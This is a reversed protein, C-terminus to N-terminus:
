APLSNAFALLYWADDSEPEKELSMKVRQQAEGFARHHLYIMGSELPVLPDRSLVQAKDFCHRETKQKMVVMLEGRVQWQDATKVESNSPVTASSIADRHNGLRSEAQARGGCIVM